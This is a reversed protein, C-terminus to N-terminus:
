YLYVGSFLFLTYFKYNRYIPIIKSFANIEQNNLPKVVELENVINEARIWFLSHRRHEQAWM